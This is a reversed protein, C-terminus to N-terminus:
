INEESSSKWIDECFNRTDEVCKSILFKASGGFDELKTTHSNWAGVSQQINIELGGGGGGINPLFIANGRTIGLFIIKRKGRFKEVVGGKRSYYQHIGLDFFWYCFSYYTFNYVIM